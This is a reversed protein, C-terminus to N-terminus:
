KPDYFRNGRSPDHIVLGGVRFPDVSPFFCAMVDTRDPCTGGIAVSSPSCTM